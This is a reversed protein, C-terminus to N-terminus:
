TLSQNYYHGVTEETQWSATYLPAGDVAWWFLRRLCIHVSVLLAHM